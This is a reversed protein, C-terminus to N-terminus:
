SFLCHHFMWWTIKLGQETANRVLIISLCCFPSTFSYNGLSAAPYFHATAKAGHWFKMTKNGGVTFYDMGHSVFRALAECGHPNGDDDFDVDRTGGTVVGNLDVGAHHQSRCATQLWTCLAKFTAFQFICGLDGAFETLHNVRSKSNWKKWFHLCTAQNAM